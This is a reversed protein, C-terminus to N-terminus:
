VSLTRIYNKSIQNKNNHKKDRTNVNNCTPYKSIEGSPVLIAVDENSLM